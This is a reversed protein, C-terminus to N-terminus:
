LFAGWAERAAALAQARHSIRNKEDPQLDGFPLTHGVPVFLPDYGFGNTGRCATAVSGECVGGVTYVTGDPEALALVCRFRAVRNAQGAMAKILKRNNAQDNASEGAYRASHVGPMGGLADVELGSDDALTWENAVRSLTGAKKVANERFTAGDEEVEPLGPIDDVTLLDLHPLDFLARIEM